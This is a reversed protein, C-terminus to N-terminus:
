QRRAALVMLSFMLISVGFVGLLIVLRIQNIRVNYLIPPTPAQILSINSYKDMAAADNTRAQGRSTSFAVSNTGLKKRREQFESITLHTNTMASSGSQSTLLKIKRLEDDMSRLQSRLLETEQALFRFPDAASISSAHKKIFTQIVQRLFPQPIERDPHQFTILILGGGPAVARMRAQFANIAEAVNTGGGLKVLFKQPGLETVVQEAIDRSTLIDVEAAMVEKNEDDQIPNAVYRILLKAESQYPAHFVLPTLFFGAVGLASLVLLPWKRQHLGHLFRASTLGRELPPTLPNSNMKPDTENGIAPRTM